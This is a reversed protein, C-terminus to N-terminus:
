FNVGCLLPAQRVQFFKQTPDVLMQLTETQDATLRNPYPLLQDTVSNGCFMNLVFSKSKEEETFISPARPAEASSPGTSPAAPPGTTPAPESVTSQTRDLCLYQLYFPLLLRSFQYMPPIIFPILM